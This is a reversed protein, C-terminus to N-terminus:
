AMSSRSELAVSWTSSVCGFTAKIKVMRAWTRAMRARAKAVVRTMMMMMIMMITKLTMM